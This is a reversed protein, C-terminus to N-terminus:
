ARWGSIDGGLWTPQERLWWNRPWRRSRSWWCRPARCCARWDWKSTARGPRSISLLLYDLDQGLARRPTFQQVARNLVLGSECSPGADEDTALFGMSLVACPAGHGVADNSPSWRAPAPRSTVRWGLLRPVSFEWIDADLIGVTLERGPSRWPSTSAHGVVQGGWGQGIRHGAGPDTPLRPPPPLPGRPGECRARAM